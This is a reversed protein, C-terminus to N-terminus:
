TSYIKEIVIPSSILDCPMSAGLKRLARLGCTEEEAVEQIAVLFSPVM